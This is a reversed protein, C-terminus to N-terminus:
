NAQAVGIQANQAAVQMEASRLDPRRRMLDAPIGVIVEPPTQPIPAKGLKAALDTPPIGLLVCMQNNTLRMGTELQPIVSELQDLLSQSQVVPLEGKQGAKWQATAIKLLGRQLDVNQKTYILQQEFTRHQVYATAVDGILTVMVNDYDDMSAQLLDDTSEVIRRIKGWFDVEWSLNFGAAWDSFYPNPPSNALNKSAQFRTYAGSAAQHQPFLQGIAIARQARAELVRSAAVRLNVNQRAATEVLDNLIPDNFVTWWASLDAPASKVRPTQKKIWNPAVPSPPSQFNPGVKGGNKVYNSLSTCGGAGVLFAAALLPAVCASLIREM